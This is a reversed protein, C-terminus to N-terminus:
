SLVIDDLNELVRSNLVGSIIITVMNLGSRNLNENVTNRNLDPTFSESGALNLFLHILINLAGRSRVLRTGPPYTHTM